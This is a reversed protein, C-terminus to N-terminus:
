GKCAEKLAISEAKRWIRVHGFFDLEPARYRRAAILRPRLRLVGCATCVRACSQSFSNCPHMVLLVLVICVSPPRRMQECSRVQRGRSELSFRTGAVAATPRARWPASAAAAPNRLTPEEQWSHVRPRARLLPPQLVGGSSKKWVRAGRGPAASRTSWVARSRSTCTSAALAM